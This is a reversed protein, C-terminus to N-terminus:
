NTNNHLHIKQLSVEFYYKGHNGDYYLLDCQLDYPHFKLLEQIQYWKFCYEVMGKEIERLVNKIFSNYFQFQTPSYNGNQIMERIHINKSDKIYKSKQHSLKEDQFIKQFEDPSIDLFLEDYKDPKRTM